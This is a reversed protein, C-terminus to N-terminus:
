KEKDEQEIRSASNLVVDAIEQRQEETMSERSRAVLSLIEAFNSKGDNKGLLYDSTTGLATALNALIEAKPMREGNIYRSLSAETTGCMQAIQSRSYHSKEILESLREPLLKNERGM